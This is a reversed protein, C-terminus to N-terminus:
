WGGGGSVEAAGVWARPTSVGSVVLFPFNLPFQKGREGSGSSNLMHIRVLRDCAAALGGFCSALTDEGEDKDVLIVM